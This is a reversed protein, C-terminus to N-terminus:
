VSHTFAEYCTIFKTAMTSSATLTQKDNKWSIAGGALMFIYDSTSKMSDKCGAFDSDTYGVIELQDSMQYALM